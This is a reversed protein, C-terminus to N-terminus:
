FRLVTSTKLCAAGQAVNNITTFFLNLGSIKM